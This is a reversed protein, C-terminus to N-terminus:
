LGGGQFREIRIADALVADLETHMPWTENGLWRAAQDAFHPSDNLGSQGGPLINIGEAGDPGLAIAMRFVPGSGYTHDDTGFGPNCADVNLM